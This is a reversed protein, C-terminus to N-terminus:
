KSPDLVNLAIQGNSMVLLPNQLVWIRDLPNGDVAILDAELGPALRGTKGAVGLLEAGSITAAQIAALPTLGADVLYAVEGGIRAVSRRSYETDAGTAFKVGLRAAERIAVRLQPLM